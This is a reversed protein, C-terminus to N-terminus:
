QDEEQSGLPNQSPATAQRLEQLSLFHAGLLLTKQFDPYEFDISRRRRVLGLIGLLRLLASSLKPITAPVVELFGDNMLGRSPDAIRVEIM